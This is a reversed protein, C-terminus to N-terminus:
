SAAVKLARMPEPNFVGGGVRRTTYFGIFPKNTLEDRLVLIGRRDVVVYTAAMDGYLAAIAGAGVDPMDPVEVVSEGVITAPVGAAYSPQWIYNGGADKFKRAASVTQRNLYFKANPRFASPTDQVISIFADPTLKSADGTVTTKIAGFPHKAANAGGTVYTLIGFPKNAGDGALFAINEQRSFEVEVEDALWQELNVEADELIQRSVFPFAYLEGTNFDLVSLAPTATAPRSATEGVWGSGVARDNYVKRFGSGTIAQVTANQRIPSIEKLRGTITRDWEVPALYGGDPNSGATMAARPGARSASRLGTEDDGHRFYASWRESYEPDAIKKEDGVGGLSATAIAANLDDLSKQFNGIDTNIREVKENLVTDDVKASLRKDNADKFESFAAQLQALIVKPDSADARLGLASIARPMTSAGLAAASALAFPAIVPLASAAQTVESMAYAHPMSFLATAVLAVLMFARYM